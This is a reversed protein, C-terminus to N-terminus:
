GSALQEAALIGDVHPSGGYHRRALVVWQRRQCGQLESSLVHITIPLRSICVDMFMDLCLTYRAPSRTAVTTLAYSIGHRSLPLPRHWLTAFTPANKAVLQLMPQLSQLM